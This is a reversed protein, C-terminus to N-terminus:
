YIATFGASILYKVDFSRFLRLKKHMVFRSCSLVDYMVLGSYSLVEHMIVDKLGAGLIENTARGPASARADGDALSRSRTHHAAVLPLLSMSVDHLRAQCARLHPSWSSCKCSKAETM